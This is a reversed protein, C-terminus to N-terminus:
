LVVEALEDTARARAPALGYRYGAAGVVLMAIGAVHTVWASCETDRGVARLLGRLALMTEAPYRGGRLLAVAACDPACRCSIRGDDCDCEHRLVCGATGCRLAGAGDCCTCTTEGRDDCVSCHEGIVPALVSALLGATGRWADPPPDATLARTTDSEPVERVGEAADRTRDLITWVPRVPAWLARGQYAHQEAGWGHPPIM